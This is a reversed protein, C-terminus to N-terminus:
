CEGKDLVHSYRFLISEAYHGHIQHHEQKHSIYPNPLCQMRLVIVDEVTEFPFICPHSNECYIGIPERKRRLTLQVKIRQVEEDVICSSCKTHHCRGEQGNQRQIKGILRTLYLDRKIEM